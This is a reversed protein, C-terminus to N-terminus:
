FNKKFNEVLIAQGWDKDLNAVYKKEQHILNLNIVSMEQTEIINKNPYNAVREDNSHSISKNFFIPCSVIQLNNHMRARFQFNTDDWGWGQNQSEDYGNVSYFIEKTVAIKGCTGHNGDPDQPFSPVIIQKEKSFENLLFEPFGPILYNDADINCLIDGSAAKHAVNKAHAAFFYKPESTRFFRFRGSQSFNQFQDWNNQIWEVLGDTSGYDLLIIESDISSAAKLNFLLTYALHHLRNM